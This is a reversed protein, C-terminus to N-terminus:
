PLNPEGGGPDCNHGACPPACLSGMPQDPKDGGGGRGMVGRWWAGSNNWFKQHPSRIPRPSRPFPPPTGVGGMGRQTSEIPAGDAVRGYGGSWARPVAGVVEATGSLNTGVGDGM